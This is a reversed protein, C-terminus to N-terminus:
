KDTFVFENQPQLMVQVWSRCIVLEASQGSSWLTEAGGYEQTLQYDSRINTVIQKLYPFTAAAEYTCPIRV